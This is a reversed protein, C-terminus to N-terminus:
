GTLYETLYEKLNDITKLDDKTIVEQRIEQRNTPAEDITDRLLQAARESGNLAERLMSAILASQMTYDGNLTGPDIGYQEIQEPKLEQSLMALITEKMTKRARRTEGSKIGGNRGRTRAEETTLMDLNNYKPNKKMGKNDNINVINSDTRNIESGNIIEAARTNNELDSGNVNDITRNDKDTKNNDM